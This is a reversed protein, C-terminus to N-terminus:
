DAACEDDHVGPNLGHVGNAGLPHLRVEQMNESSMMTHINQAYRFRVHFDLSFVIAFRWKRIAM